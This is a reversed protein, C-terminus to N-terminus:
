YSNLILEGTDYAEGFEWEARTNSGTAVAISQIHNRYHPQPDQVNIVINEGVIDGKGFKVTGSTWSVWFPRWENASLIGPTDHEVVIEGGVSRIHLATKTNGASGIEVEYSPARVNGPASLLRFKADSDAKVRFTTNQTDLLSRHITRYQQDFRTYGRLSRVLFCFSNYVESKLSNTNVYVNLMAIVM